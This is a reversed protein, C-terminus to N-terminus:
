LGLGPTWYAKGAKEKAVDMRHLNALGEFAIEIAKDQGDAVTFSEGTVLNNDVSVVAGGRRGFLNCLTIIGSSERDWYLVNARNYYDIIETHRNQLYGGVSPNGCAVYESDQSRGIGVHYRYKLDEAAQAFSTVMEYSAAAPYASTIYSKSMGEDRVAGSAIVVDGSRVNDGIGAAGGLRMFASAKTYHMFEVLILESEPAGSGGSVISIHAGKYYGSYTTFMGSKGALVRNELRESLLEAPDKGYDLLPDRVCLIVYDGVLDPDIQTLAPKGNIQFGATHVNSKYEYNEFVKDFKSM